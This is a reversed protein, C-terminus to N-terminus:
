GLEATRMTFCRRRYPPGRSRSCRSPWTSGVVQAGREVAHAALVGPGCGVDLLRTGARVDVADLLPDVTRSSLQAFGDQYRSARREWSSREFENFADPDFEATM